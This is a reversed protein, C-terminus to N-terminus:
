AVGGNDSSQQKPFVYGRRKFESKIENRYHLMEKENEANIGQQHAFQGAANEGDKVYIDVFRRIFKREELSIIKASM